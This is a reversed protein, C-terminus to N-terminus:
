NEAGVHHSAVMQLELNLPDSVMRQGRCDSYVHSVCVYMCPFYGHMYLLYLCMKLECVCVSYAYLTVFGLSVSIIGICQKLILTGVEQAWPQM